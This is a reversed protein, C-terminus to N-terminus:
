PSYDRDGLQQIGGLLSPGGDSCGAHWVSGTLCVCSESRSLLCVEFVTAAADLQEMQQLTEGLNLYARGHHPQVTIVQTYAQWLAGHSPLTFLPLM